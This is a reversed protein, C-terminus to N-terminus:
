STKQNVLHLTTLLFLQPLHSLLILMLITKSPPLLVYLTVTMAHLSFSQPGSNKPQKQGHSTSVQLALAMVCYVSYFELSLTTLFSLICYVTIFYPFYKTSHLVHYKPDFAAATSLTTEGLRRCGFFTILAIAWVAAHFPNSIDLACRLCSLHEISVPARLAFKHKAGEKNTSTRALHVWNDDGHWPAHNMIHWSRLGALWSRITNDSQRGKYEGIFACLFAYDAPM